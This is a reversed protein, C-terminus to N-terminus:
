PTDERRTTNQGVDRHVAGLTDLDRLLHGVTEDDPAEYIVQALVAEDQRHRLALARLVAERRLWAPSGLITQVAFCPRWEAEQVVQLLRFARRYTQERLTAAPSAWTGTWWRM